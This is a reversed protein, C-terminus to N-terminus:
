VAESKDFPAAPVSQPKPLVMFNPRIGTRPVYSWFTNGNDRFTFGLEIDTPGDLSQERAAIFDQVALGSGDAFLECETITDPPIEGIRIKGAEVYSTETPERRLGSPVYVDVTFDHVIATSANKISVLLQSPIVADQSSGPGQCAPRRQHHVEGVPWVSVLVAQAMLIQKDRLDDREREIQVADAAYKAARGAYVGAIVAALFTALTSLANIWDPVTSSSASTIAPVAVGIVCIILGGLVIVMFATTGVNRRWASKAGEDPKRVNAAPLAFLQTIRETGVFVERM